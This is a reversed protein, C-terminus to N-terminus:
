PVLIWSQILIAPTTPAKREMGRTGQNFAAAALLKGFPTRPAADASRKVVDSVQLPQQELFSLDLEGQKIPLAFVLMGEVGTSDDKASMRTRLPKLAKGRSLSGAWYQSIGLNADLYLISIALDDLGENKIRFEMDQGDHLVPQRLPEGGSRDNEDKLKGAEFRLGHTENEDETSVGNAVRWLNRWKFIKPLDRELDGSLAKADGLPYKGYIKRPLRYGASRLREEIQRASAAERERQAQQQGQGPLLLVQDEKLGALGFEGKAQRPTVVRLMWEATAETVDTNVMAKLEASTDALASKIAAADGLSLRLRLDGFDRSVIECRGLDPLVGAAVAPRGAFECPRVNATTPSVSAVRVHGLAQKADRADGPPPYVALISGPTLGALEGANLQLKDKRSELAIESRKPWLNLGLVERDLDGEALPTPSRNGRAARYRAAIMRALERYTIPSHRQELSQILSYSLLGYYHEKTLPAGEPLPLEPATEFPQAAYFAVLSGRGTGPRIVAAELPKEGKAEAQKVAEHARAAAKDISTQSVGLATPDAVRSIEVVSADPGATGRTMTGSHCCDFVIWVSAGKDRMQNLWAGIQDDKLINQLSGDADDPNIPKVDAPLFVEDLGDPEPNKPDLPDTQSEPIPVQVGHGSLAIVIQVGPASKEILDTFGRAINVYTPREEPRDPWGVLLKVNATPFAFGKPETLIKAWLPADNAPGYLDRLNKAYPYQTCGVILAHKSPEADAALVAGAQCAVLMALAFGISRWPSRGVSFRHRIM